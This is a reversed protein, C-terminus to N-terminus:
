LKKLRLSIKSLYEEFTSIMHQHKQMVPGNLTIQIKLLTSPSSSSIVRPLRSHINSPHTYSTNKVKQFM